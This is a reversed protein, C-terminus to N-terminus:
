GNVPTPAPQQRLHALVEGVLYLSGVILTGRLHPAQRHAALAESVSPFTRANPCDAALTESSAGRPSQLPVIWLEAGLARLQELMPPIKKDKLIAFIVRGPPHGILQKWSALVGSLGAANHAGDMILWPEFDLVQFRGPWEVTALGERITDPTLSWRHSPSMSQCVTAALAANQLQFDGMLPTTLALDDLAFHQAPPISSIRELAPPSVVHFPANKETASQRLVDLAEEPSRACFVPIGAKIIGAKESAIAALSNGLHQEHDMGINTIISCEPTIINTADLRGGMGTELVVMDAKQQEFWLFALATTAEFFTIHIDRKRLTEIAERLTLLLPALQRYPIMQGDLQLRERFDVLHPSTYLGTRWRARRLISAIAAATSGKGNTGAIHIFRLSSQPNGLEACLAQINRLGLKIGFLQLDYLYAIGEECAAQASSPVSEM